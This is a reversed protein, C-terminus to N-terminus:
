GKCMSYLGLCISQLTDETYIYKVENDFSRYEKECLEYLDDMVPYADSTLTDLDTTDDIGFKSYLRIPQCACM